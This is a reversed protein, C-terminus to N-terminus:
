RSAHRRHHRGGWGSGILGQLSGIDFSGLMSTLGGLGQGSGMLGGMNFGGNGFGGFGGFGGGGGGQDMMNMMMPGMTQMLQGYRKKGMRKKMMELMPAFQTMMQNQDMGAFQARAPAPMAALMMALALAGAAYPLRKM